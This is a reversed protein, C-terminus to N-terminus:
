DNDYILGFIESNYFRQYVENSNYMLVDKVIVLMDCMLMEILAEDTVIYLEGGSYCLFHSSSEQLTETVRGCVYSSPFDYPETLLSIVDDNDKVNFLRRGKDSNNNHFENFAEVYLLLTAFDDHIFKVDNIKKRLEEAIVRVLSDFKSIVNEM